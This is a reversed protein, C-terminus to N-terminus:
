DNQLEKLLNQSSVQDFIANILHHLRKGERYDAQAIFNVRKHDLLESRVMSDNEDEHYVAIAYGGNSRILKMSPVDTLGDGIYIMNTFPMYKKEEDIHQNLDKDNEIELINKNIRFVFQTKMTYNVSLKPWVAEGKADYLFECAFIKKFHKAIPSNEIIEKLGSSIIYHEVELGRRKGEANILDFWKDVGSFFEIKPGYNALRERTIAINQAKSSEVMHFMYMLIHDMHEKQCLDEVEKWFDNSSSLGLDDFYGFEQMDHTSLTKDFDYILAIKM